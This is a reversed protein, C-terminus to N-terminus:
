TPNDKSPNGIASIDRSKGDIVKGKDRASDECHDTGKEISEGKLHGISSNESKDYTLKIFGMYAFLM